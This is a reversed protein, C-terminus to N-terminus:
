STTGKRAGRKAAEEVLFPYAVYAAKDIFSANRGLISAVVVSTAISAGTSIKKFDSPDREIEEPKFLDNIWNTM